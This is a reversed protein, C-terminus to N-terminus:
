AKGDDDRPKRLSSSVTRIATPRRKLITPKRVYGHKIHVAGAYDVGVQDFVTGPEVREIPLQGLM